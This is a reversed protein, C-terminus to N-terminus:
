FPRTCGSCALCFERALVCTWVCTGANQTTTRFFKSFGHFTIWVFPTNGFYSFQVISSLFFILINGPLFQFTRSLHLAIMLFLQSKFNSFSHEQSNLLPRNKSWQIAVIACTRKNLTSQRIYLTTCYTEGLPWHM